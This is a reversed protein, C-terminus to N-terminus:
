IERGKGKENGTPDPSALLKPRKNPQNQDTDIELFSRKLSLNSSEPLVVSTTDSTSWPRPMIRSLIPSNINNKKMANFAQKIKVDDGNGNQLACIYEWVSTNKPKGGGSNLLYEAWIEPYKETLIHFVINSKNFNDPDLKVIKFIISDAINLKLQAYFNIFIQVKYDISTVLADKYAETLYIKNQTILFQGRVGLYPFNLAIFDNCGTSNFLFKLAAIKRHEIFFSELTKLENPLPILYKIQSYLPLTSFSALYKNLKRIDEIGYITYERRAEFANNPTMYTSFPVKQGITKDIEILRPLNRSERELYCLVYNCIFPSINECIFFGIYECVFPGFLRVLYMIIFIYIFQIFFSIMNVNKNKLINKYMNLSCVILPIFFYLLYRCNNMNCVIIVPTLLMFRLFIFLIDLRDFKKILLYFMRIFCALCALCAILISFLLFLNFFIIRYFLLLTNILFNMIDVNTPIFKVM